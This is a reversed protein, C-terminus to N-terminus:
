GRTKDPQAPNPLRCSPALLAIGGVWQAWRASVFFALLCVLFAPLNSVGEELALAPNPTKLFAWSCAVFNVLLLLFLGYYLRRNKWYFAEMDIPRDAPAEPAAAVCIFYVLVASTFFLTITTLDWEKLGRYDWMSLWDVYVQAVANLIAVTLLGSFSVRERALVLAGLRSLLHALALAYVFSLLLLIFDFKGM